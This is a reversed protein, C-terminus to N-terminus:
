QRRHTQQPGENRPGVFSQLCLQCMLVTIPPREGGGGVEGGDTTKETASHAKWLDRQGSGEKSDSAFRWSPLKQTSLPATLLGRHGCWTRKETVLSPCSCRHVHDCTTAVTLVWPSWGEPDGTHHGCRSPADVCGLLSTRGRDILRECIRKSHRPGDLSPPQWPQHALRGSSCGAGGAASGNSLHPLLPTKVVSPPQQDLFHWGGTTPIHGSLGRGPKRSRM